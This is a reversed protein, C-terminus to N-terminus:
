HLLDVNESLLEVAMVVTKELTEEDVQNNQCGIQGKVRYRWVKRKGLSTTWNKRGFASDCEACFVKTTFPNDDNQM